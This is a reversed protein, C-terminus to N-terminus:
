SYTLESANLSHHLAAMRSPNEFYADDCMGIAHAAIQVLAEATKTFGAHEAAMAAVLARDAMEQADM